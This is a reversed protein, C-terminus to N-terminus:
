KGRPNRSPSRVEFFSGLYAGSLAVVTGALPLIPLFSGEIFGYPYLWSFVVVGCVLLLWPRHTPAPLAAVIAFLIGGTLVLGGQGLVRLNRLTPDYRAADFIFSDWAILTLYLYLGAVTV